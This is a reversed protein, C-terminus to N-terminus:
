FRLSKLIREMVKEYGKGNKEVAVWVHWMSTNDVFLADRFVWPKQHLQFTGDMKQGSIKQLKIAKEEKSIKEAKLSSLIENMETQLLDHLPTTIPVNYDVFKFIAVVKGEAHYLRYTDFRRIHNIMDWPVQVEMPTVPEPLDMTLPRDGLSFQIWNDAPAQSLGIMPCVMVHLFLM